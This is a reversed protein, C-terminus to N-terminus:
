AATADWWINGAELSAMRARATAAWAPNSAEYVALDANISKISAEANRQLRTMQAETMPPTPLRHREAYAAKAAAKAAKITARAEAAEAPTRNKM